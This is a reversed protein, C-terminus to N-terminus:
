GVRRFRVGRKFGVTGLYSGMSAQKIRIREGPKTDITDSTEWTGKDDDVVISWVSGRHSVSLVKGEIEQIDDSADVKRGGLTFKPLSFGFLSKRTERIQQRDMVVLDQKKEAVDIASVQNDYCALRAASDAIARCEILKAFLPPREVPKDAAMAPAFLAAAVAFGALIRHNIM